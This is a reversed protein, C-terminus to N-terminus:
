GKTSTQPAPRPIGAEYDDVAAVLSDHEYGCADPGRWAVAAEVVPKMRAVMRRLIGLERQAEDREAKLIEGAEMATRRAERWHDVERKAAELQNALDNYLQQTWGSSVAPSTARHKAVLREILSPDYAATM